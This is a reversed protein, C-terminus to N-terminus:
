IGWNLIAIASNVDADTLGIQPNTHVFRDQQQPLMDNDDDLIVFSEVPEHRPNVREREPDLDLWEQIEQGRSSEGVPTRDIINQPFQFDLKSLMSKLESLSWIHRWTSSIVIKAKTARVLRNLREVAMPDIQAIGFDM